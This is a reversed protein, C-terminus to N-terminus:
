RGMAVTVIATTSIIMDRTVVVYILFQDSPGQVKNVLYLKIFLFFSAQTGYLGKAGM